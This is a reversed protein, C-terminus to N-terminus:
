KPDISTYDIQHNELVLNEAFFIRLLFVSCFLNKELKPQSKEWGKTTTNVRKFQNEGLSATSTRKELSNPPVEYILFIGLKEM